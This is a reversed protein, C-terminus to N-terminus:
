CAATTNEFPKYGRASSSPALIRHHGALIRNILLHLEMQLGLVNLDTPHLINNKKWHQHVM